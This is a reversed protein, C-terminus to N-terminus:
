HVLPLLIPTYFPPLPAQLEGRGPLLTLLILHLKLAKFHLQGQLPSGHGYSPIVYLQLYQM